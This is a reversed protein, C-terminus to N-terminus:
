KGPEKCAINAGCASYGALDIWSDLHDPQHEIRALKLDACMIAVSVADLPLTVGFRNLIHANWRAAIRNFNDEPAGYNLGRDATAEKAKDLLGHKSINM